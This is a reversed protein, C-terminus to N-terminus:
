KTVVALMVSCLRSHFSLKTSAALGSSPPAMVLTRSPGASSLGADLRDRRRRMSEHAFGHGATRAQRQFCVVQPMVPRRLPRTSRPHRLPIVARKVGIRTTMDTTRTRAANGHSGAHSAPPVAVSGTPCTLLPGPVRQTPGQRMPRGADVRHGLVRQWGQLGQVQGPLQYSLASREGSVLDELGAPLRPGVTLPVQPLSQSLDTDPQGVSGAAVGDTSGPQQLASCGPDVRVGSTPTGGVPQIQRSDGCASPPVGAGSASARTTTLPLTAAFAVPRVDAECARVLTHMSLAGQPGLRRTRQGRRCPPWPDQRCKGHDPRSVRLITCDSVWDVGAISVQTM